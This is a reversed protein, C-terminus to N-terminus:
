LKASAMWGFKLEKDKAPDIIVNILAVQNSHLAEVTADRVEDLTTACFGLAGLSRALNHYETQLSLATSPLQKESTESYLLPDSGHYVGSNNMVYIIMPLKSRVATEIEMASFGFASDGEIAVVTSSPNAVKASIAYGMGVGMTANTGADLRTRPATLTFSTRSIDMTNAGESVFIVNGPVHEDLLERIVKYVPQYQLVNGTARETNVAKTENLQKKEEVSSLIPPARWGELASKLQTAVHGIDGQVGLYRSGFTAGHLEEGVQDVHIIRVDKSFKPAAGFHLIWNLRAGLVLIVDASKLAASRAASLNLPNTDSVVGKGMPTAIFGLNTGEQFARVAEEAQGQACGKGVILLPFKAEKLTLAANSIRQPDAMTRPPSMPPSLRRESTLPSKLRSQIIDAPLDVYSTGPKGYFSVKYAQELLRPLNQISSPQEAFKAGAAKVLSVQDLQQFAGLGRLNTEASGALLLLPFRNANSNEVGALAHVVGPGGVVLCVGPIGTLYGYISAAYVASQENRFTIVRIGEQICAEAVEIVPIGVIGFVHQIGLQKLSAAIIAAGGLDAM